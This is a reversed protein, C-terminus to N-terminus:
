LQNVWRKFSDVLSRDDRYSSRKGGQWIAGPAIPQTWIVLDTLRSWKLDILRPAAEFFWDPLGKNGDDEIWPLQAVLHGTVMDFVLHFVTTEWSNPAKTVMQGGHERLSLAAWLMSLAMDVPETVTLECWGDRDYYVSVAGTPMETVEVLTGPGGDESKTAPRYELTEDDVLVHYSNPEKTM